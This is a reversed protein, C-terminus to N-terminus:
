NFQFRYFNSGNQGHGKARVMKDPGNQGIGNRGTVTLVCQLRKNLEIVRAILTLSYLVIMVNICPMVVHLM